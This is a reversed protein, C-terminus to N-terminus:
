GPGVPRHHSVKRPTDGLRALAKHIPPAFQQWRSRPLWTIEAIEDGARMTGEATGDFCILLVQCGPPAGYAQDEIRILERVSGPDLRLGVEEAVERMAAEAYSEGDEPIGGPLFYVDLGHPRVALVADGRRTLWTAAIVMQSPM